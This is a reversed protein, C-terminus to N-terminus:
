IVVGPAPQVARLDDEYFWADRTTRNLKVVHWVKRNTKNSYGSDIVRFVEGTAGWPYVNTYDITGCCGESKPYGDSDVRLQVFGQPQIAAAPQWVDMHSKDGDIVFLPVIIRDIEANSVPEIKVAIIKTDVFNDHHTLPIMATGIMQGPQITVTIDVKTPYDAPWIATSIMSFDDTTIHFVSPLSSPSGRIIRVEAVGATEVAVNSPTFFLPPDPYTTQSAAPAASALLLATILRRM